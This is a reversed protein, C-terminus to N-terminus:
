EAPELFYGIGRRTRILDPIAMKRRVAAVHVYLANSYAPEQEGWCHEWLEAHTVVDGPRSALMELIAFERATLDLSRGSRSARRKGSDITLDGVQVIAARMGGARRCLTLTRLALEDLDFPKALFDDAGAELAAIRERPGVYCGSVVLIPVPSGHARLDGVLSLADGGPVARDLLLCDHTAEATLEAAKALNTAQDVALGVRMLRRRMRDILVPDDELLLVRM